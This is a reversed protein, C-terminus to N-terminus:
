WLTPEEPLPRASPSLSEYTKRGMIVVGGRTITSFFRMDEPLRPWPITGDRGMAYDVETYAVIIDFSM